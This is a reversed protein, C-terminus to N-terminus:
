DGSFLYDKTERLSRLNGFVNRDMEDVLDIGDMGDMYEAPSYFTSLPYRKKTFPVEAVM